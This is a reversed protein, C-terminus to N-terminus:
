NLPRRAAVTDSDRAKSEAPVRAAGPGLLRDCTLCANDLDSSKKDCAVCFCTLVWRLVPRFIRKIPVIVRRQRARM